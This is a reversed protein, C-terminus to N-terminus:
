PAQQLWAWTVIYRLLDAREALCEVVQERLRADVLEDHENVIKIATQGVGSDLRKLRNPQEDEGRTGGEHHGGILRHNLIGDALM